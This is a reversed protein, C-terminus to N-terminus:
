PSEGTPVCFSTTGMKAHALGSVHELASLAYVLVRACVNPSPHKKQPYIFQWTRQLSIGHNTMVDACHQIKLTDAELLHTGCVSLSSVLHLCTRLAPVQVCMCM